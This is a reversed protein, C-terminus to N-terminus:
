VLGMEVLFRSAQKRWGRYMSAYSITLTSKTRTIAVFCSRREEEMEPSQDGAKRSQFSPLIDDAAGALYVHDFENGKAGHITLLSLQGPRRPPEKSRMDLDQLFEDVSFTRGLSGSIERYLEAWARLDDDFSVFEQGLAGSERAFFEVVQSIVQRFSVEERLYREILDTAFKARESEDAVEIAVSWARLFDGYEAESIAIIAGPEAHLGLLRSSTSTFVELADPDTRHSALRLLSVLWAYPTSTFNDKRQPLSNPIGLQDLSLKVGELVSRNRALVALGEYGVTGFRQKVDSAVWAYEEQDTDLRVVRVADKLDDTRSAVIPQKWPSRLNNNAVLKNAIDVIAPPCRFNTPLQLRQPEFDSLVQEIRRHSAGNWQYIIQDDDAVVMLNPQSTGLFTKVFEFQARNTDQFEDVCVYRYTTRYRKVVGPFKNFLYHAHYILGGVDIANVSRLYDEFGKFASAVIRGVEKDSFREQVNEPTVLEDRLRDILPLLKEPRLRTEIDIDKLSETLLELRDDQSIYIKFDTEIGIHTGSQRLVETAFSHFTGILARHENEPSLEAVRHRMEDAARNTFTLALVRWSGQTECLRAIRSTLVRTKGSGPGALVLLPGDGWDVAARQIETLGSYLDSM